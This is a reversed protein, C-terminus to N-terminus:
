YAGKSTFVAVPTKLIILLDYVLSKRKAYEADMKVRDVFGIKSRGGVQWPGTIGPKVEKLLGIYAKTEPFAEAQEKLEFPYYARPGVISMDGKLVNIFQPLEDISFKRIFRGGKILRPDENEELKYNNEQYKKYWEPNNLLWEHANPIMSRFKYMRFEGGGKSVRMPIDAFIPGDPSYIKILTSTIIMIPSFLLLACTSGIVDIIRKGIDYM